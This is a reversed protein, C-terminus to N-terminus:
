YEYSFGIRYNTTSFNYKYLKEFNQNSTQRGYGFQSTWVFHPAIHYSVDFGLVAENQYIKDSLYLGSADQAPRGSYEVRGLTASLSIALPREENGGSQGAPRKKNLSLDVGARISTSDYYNKLYMFRQADYSNQNSTNFGAALRVGAVAKWNGSIERPIRWALSLQSSIDNRTSNIFDGTQTVVYQDPFLRLTTVLNGEAYSRWPGQLTGGFTLSHNSSDLVSRGALERAMSNGQSDKIISELSSFNVFGINYFDYGITFSFPDRYAYEGEFSFSPCRYDFLGHGWSEDRTEKLFEWKYGLGPKLKWKPSLQYISRVALSHAMREQFLTGGGVLDTVQKTGQYQSSIVPVIAWKPGLKEHKIVMSALVNLNGSLNGQEKQFFHQGGNFRVALYPLFEAQAQATEYETLGAFPTEEPSVTEATATSLAPAPAETLSAAQTVTSVLTSALAETVSVPQTVTSVLTSADDEASSDKLDLDPTETAEFRAYQTATKKDVTEDFTWGKPELEQGKVRFVKLASEGPSIRKVNVFDAHGVEARSYFTMGESGEVETGASNSLNVNGRGVVFKYYKNRNVSTIRAKSRGTSLLTGGADVLVGTPGVRLTGNALELTGGSGVYIRNGVNLAGEQLDLMGGEINVNRIVKLKSTQLRVNGKYNTTLALYYLKVDLDWSCDKSSRVGFVVYDNKGPAKGPLWNMSDSAKDTKGEGTWRVKEDLASAATAFLAFQVAFLVFPMIAMIAKKDGYDKKM